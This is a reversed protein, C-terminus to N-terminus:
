SKLVGTDIALLAFRDTQMEFFPGRQFGTPVDYEGRLRQAEHILGDIRAETTSTVRLDAKARARICLRAADPELFTASFAELADYWDHNGPIAYVPRTVGKFPLWFKAEYDKMAGVPYVVDSSVVVFRVDPSNAVSILQDRLVHQSADGEGTDGIVVFSFDGGDVGPPEVAFTSPAAGGGSSEQVARVMAERWTDTRSAAWSNWMGAAWNETDFYWSMGWIPVTAALIAAFPLGRQLGRKLATPVSFRASRMRIATRLRWRLWALEVRDIWGREEPSRSLYRSWVRREIIRTPRRWLLYMPNAIFLTVLVSLAMDGLVAVGPSLAGVITLETQMRGMHIAFLTAIFAMTWSWDIPSRMREAEKVETALAEAEPRGALGLEAMVSEEVATPSFPPAVMLQWAIKFIRLAAGTAVIWDFAWGQAVILLLAASGNWIAAIATVIGGSRRFFRVCNWVCDLAFWAAMAILLARSAVYPANILAVAIAMSIWAGRTAEHESTTSHQRVAHLIEIIAAMALLWGARAAVSEARSFPSLLAMLALGLTLLAFGTISIKRNSINVNM